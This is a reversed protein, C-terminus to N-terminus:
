EMPIFRLIILAVIFGFLVAGFIDGAPIPIDITM